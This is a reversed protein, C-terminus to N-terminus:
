GPPFEQHRILMDLNPRYRHWNPWLTNADLVHVRHDIERNKWVIIQDPRDGPWFQQRAFFGKPFRFPIAPDTGSTSLDAIDPGPGTRRHSQQMFPCFQGKLHNGLCFCCLDIITPGAYITLAFENTGMRMTACFHAKDIM